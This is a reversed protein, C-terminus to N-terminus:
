STTFTVVSGNKEGKFQNSTSNYWIQGNAPDAPDSELVPIILVNLQNTKLQELLQRLGRMQNELRKELSLESLNKM